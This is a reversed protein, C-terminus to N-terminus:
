CVKYARAYRVLRMLLKISYLADKQVADKLLDHILRDATRQIKGLTSLYALNTIEHDKLLKCLSAKKKGKGGDLYKGYDAFKIISETMDEAYARCLICVARFNGFIYSSKIEEYLKERRPAILRFGSPWRPLQSLRRVMNDGSQLILEELIGGITKIGAERKHPRNSYISMLRKFLQSQKIGVLPYYRSKLILEELEKDNKEYDKQLERYKGLMDWHYNGSARVDEDSEDDCLLDEPSGFLLINEAESGYAAEFESDIEQMAHAKSLLVKFTAKIEPLLRDKVYTTM